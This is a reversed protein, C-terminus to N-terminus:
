GHLVMVTGPEVLTYSQPVLPVKEEKHDPEGDTAEDYNAGTEWEDALGDTKSPPVVSVSRADKNEEGIRQAGDHSKRQRHHRDPLNEDNGPSLRAYLVAIITLPVQSQM